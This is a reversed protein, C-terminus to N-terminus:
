GLPQHAAQRYVNQIVAKPRYRDNSLADRLSIQTDAKPSRPRESIRTTLRIGPSRYTADQPTRSRQSVYESFGPDFASISDYFQWWKRSESYSLVEILGFENGAWTAEDIAGAQYQLWATQRRIVFSILYASLRVKDTDTMDPNSLNLSTKLIPMLASKVTYSAGPAPKVRRRM